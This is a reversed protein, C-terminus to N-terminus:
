PTRQLHKWLDEYADLRGTLYRQWLIDEDTEIELNYIMMETKEIKHLLFRKVEMNSDQPFIMAPIFCLFMLIFKM